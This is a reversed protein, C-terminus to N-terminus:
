LSPVADREGLGEKAMARIEVAISKDNGELRALINRLALRMREERQVQRKRFAAQREANTM